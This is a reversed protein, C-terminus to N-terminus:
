ETKKGISIEQDDDAQKAPPAWTGTLCRIGPRSKVQRGLYSVHRKQPTDLV